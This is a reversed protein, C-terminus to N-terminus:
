EKKGTYCMMVLTSLYMSVPIIISRSLYAHNQGIQIRYLIWHIQAVLLTSQAWQNAASIYGDLCLNVVTHAQGDCLHVCQVYAHM